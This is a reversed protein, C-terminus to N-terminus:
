EEIPTRHPTEAPVPSEPANAENLGVEYVQVDSRHQGAEPMDTAIRNLEAVAARMADESVWFSLEIARRSERDLLTVARDFGPQGRMAPVLTRQVWALVEEAHTPEAGVYTTMRAIM